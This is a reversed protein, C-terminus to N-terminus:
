KSSTAVKLEDTFKKAALEPTVQDFLVEANVRKIIQAVEGAGIPPVAVGDVIDDQLDTLFTAAQKDVDTFKDQVAARVDLNAPLGRDSLLLAGAEPDNLLFDILTAAAEPHESTKAVSYYMAPKFYMGTRKFESEGPFRLLTLERGSAKSIAGLQNTWFVGMAGTHTGLLSGEPGAGDVEVSKSGDPQGGAQRADVLIQWWDALLGDSYGISGDEKYLSQGHQRAYISFGPENFGFDQGGYVAGGSAQTIQATIEVYDEWTWTTDDPMPVGADAFAQPDALVAYANVGTPVGYTAGDLGGADIVAPDIRSTDLQDAVTTLDLLVGREAYDRLYREEQTIVDPADGGAVSTSLKDWYGDWTTFDPEVTINPHKAHFADLVEQTLAHRTDSGWWSFRITVPEDSATTTSEEAAPEDTGACATLALAVAAAVAALRAGQRLTRRSTTHLSM